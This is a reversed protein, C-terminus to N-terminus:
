ARMDDAIQRTVPRRLACCTRAMIVSVTAASSVALWALLSASSFCLADCQLRKPAGEPPRKTHRALQALNKGFCPPSTGSGTPLEILIHGKVPRLRGLIRAGECRAHQSHKCDCGDTRGEREHECPQM